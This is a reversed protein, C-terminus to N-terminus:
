GFYIHQGGGGGGGSPAAYDDWGSTAYGSYTDASAGMTIGVRADEATFTSTLSPDKVTVDFSQWGDLNGSSTAGLTNNNSINGQGFTSYSNPIDFGYGGNDVSICEHCSQVRNNNNIFEFGDDTNNSAVCKYTNRCDHFGVGTNGHAICKFFSMNYSSSDYLEFGGSANEYALCYEACRVDLFGWGANNHAVCNSFVESGSARQSYFGSGGNNHSIINYFMPGNNADGSTRQYHLGHSTYNKIEFNAIKLLDAISAGSTNSMYIGVGLSNTGDLLVMGNDSSVGEYGFMLRGTNAPIVVAENYTADNKVYITDGNASATIAAGITQKATEPTTGADGDDGSLGSVYYIAM